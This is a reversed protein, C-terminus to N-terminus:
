TSGFGFIYFMVSVMLCYKESLLVSKFAAAAPASSPVRGVMRM